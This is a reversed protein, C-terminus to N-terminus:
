NKTKFTESGHGINGVIDTATMAVTYQTNVLQAVSPLSNLTWKGSTVTGALSPPTQGSAVKVWATGNWYNSDTARKLTGTVTSIANNAGVAAVKGAITIAGKVTAGLTPTTISLTPATTATVIKQTQTVKQSGLTLTLTATYIGPSSYTHIPSRHTSDTTGDGFSWIWNDGALSYNFFTVGLGPKGSTPSAYFYAASSSAGNYYWLRNTPNYGLTYQGLHVTGNTVLVPSTNAHVAVTFNCSIWKNAAYDFIAANILNSDPVGATYHTSVWAVVGDQVTLQSVAWYNGTGKSNGAYWSYDVAYTGTAANYAAYYVNCNETYLNPIWPTFTALWSTVGGSSSITQIKPAIGLPEDASDQWFYNQWATKAPDFTSLFVGAQFSNYQYEYNMKGFISGNMQSISAPTWFKSTTLIYIPAYYDLAQYETVSTLPDLVTDYIQYIKNGGSQSLKIQATPNTLAPWQASALQTAVLLVASVVIRPDFKLWNMLVFVGVFGAQTNMVEPM